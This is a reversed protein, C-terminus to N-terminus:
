RAGGALVVAAGDVHHVRVPTGYLATLREGTLMTAVPGVELRGGGVIALRAVYSAVVNLLHSVMVVTLRDAVHLRRVLEMIANEAPLDMGNTPEDLVLITPQAALARAILTRQKQGGSLTRYRRDLLDAIAVHEAAEVVFAHDERRPRRFLGIRAFRGMLIMERVTLPFTEDVAQRQPVYGFVLGREPIRITGRIPTLTGLLAKLLTTKGAGNPGVIGLFDGAAVSLEVDRLVTRRGYGLTVHDFEIFPHTTM